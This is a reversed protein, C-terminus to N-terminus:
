SVKGSGFVAEKAYRQLCQQCFLHGEYCQVMNDFPVEDYCCGCEILQSTEKYENENLELAIQHDAEQVFVSFM